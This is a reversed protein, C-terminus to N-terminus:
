PQVGAPEHLRPAGSAPHPAADDPRPCRRERRVQERLGGPALRPQGSRPVAVPRGDARSARRPARRHRGLHARDGARQHRGVARLRGTLHELDWPPGSRPAVAGLAPPGDPTVDWVRLEGDHGVSALREGDGIFGADWSGSDHGRLVLADEGSSVDLIRIPSPNGGALRAPVTPAGTSPGVDALAIRRELAGPRHGPDPGRSGDAIRAGAVREACRARRSPLFGPRRSRTWARGDAASYIGVFGSDPSSSRRVTRWSRRRGGLGDLEFSFLETGSTLDWMTVRDDHRRRGRQRHGTAPWRSQLRPSTGRRRHRAPPHGRRRDGRGVAIAAPAAGDTTTSTCRCRPAPWRPQVAPGVADAASRSRAADAPPRRHRRGLDPRCRSRRALGHRDPRRRQQRRPDIAEDRRYQLRSAQTARQLSAIAEPLPDAGDRETTDVAELALLIALEPDEDIAGHCRQGARRAAGPPRGNPGTANGVFLLGAVVAVVLLAAVGILSWRLRRARRQADDLERAAESASADLFNQESANVDAPHAAAWDLASDLKTGRYLESADEGSAKWAQAAESIRGHLRRGQVDEDLWGRLRPWERLLAEHAVEVTDRDIVLLRREVFAACRSARTTTPRSSTSRCADAFTRRASRARVRVAADAVPPDGTAAAARARHRTRRWAPLPATSGAPRTYAALTLVGDVRREWTEALATSLLPLAGPRGAVDAVILDVLGPEFPPGARQAPREIARRLEVERMPGVLVDNGSILEALDPFSACRDLHDARVAIVVVHGAPTRRGRRPRRVGGARQPRPRGHLDGRVPRLVGPPSRREHREARRRSRRPTEIVSALRRGGSARRGGAGAAPRGPRAVVQRQGVPRRRGATSRRGAPRRARRGAARSRLLRRRRRGRLRFPGQVPPAPPAGAREASARSAAAGHQRAAARARAPHGRRERRDRARLGALRSQATASRDAAAGVDRVARERAWESALEHVRLPVGGTLEHLRDVDDPWWGEVAYMECVRRLAGRDLGRLVLHAGSTVAAPSRRIPADADARFTAVVLLSGADSWAALDALVEITEADALHVDDIALLVPRGTSETALVQM